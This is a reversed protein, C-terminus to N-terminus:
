NKEDELAIDGRILDFDVFYKILRIELNIVQFLFLIVRFNCYFQKEWHSLLGKDFLQNILENLSGFFNLNGIFEKKQDLLERLNYQRLLWLCILACMDERKWRHVRDILMEYFELILSCLSIIKLQDFHYYMEKNVLMASILKWKIQVSVANVTNSIIFIM